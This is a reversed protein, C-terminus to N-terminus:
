FEGPWEGAFAQVAPGRKYGRTHRPLGTVGRPGGPLRVPLERGEPALGNLVAAVATACAGTGCALTIGSGREWGAVDIGTPGVAAFEVNTRRPFRSTDAELAPGFRRAFDVTAEEAPGFIVAHPNGMSVATVAFTREETGGPVAAGPGAGARGGTRVVVPEGVMRGSGAAPIEPRELIPRGMDVTVTVVAGDPGRDVVCVKEGGATAIRVEPGPALGYDVAHKAVCRIGNGCMEAESGDANFIHMRLDAGEAPLLTLVGDAGVGLHRDCLARAAESTPPGGAKTRDLVVFDNGLGHYKFFATPM